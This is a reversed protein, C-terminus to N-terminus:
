EDRSGCRITAFMLEGPPTATVWHRGSAAPMSANPFCLTM